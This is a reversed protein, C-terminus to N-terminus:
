SNWVEAHFVKENTLRLVWGKRNFGVIKGGKKYQIIQYFREKLWTSPKESTWHDCVGYNCSHMVTFWEGDLAMIEEPTMQKEKGDPFRVTAMNPMEDFTDYYSHEGLRTAKHYAM